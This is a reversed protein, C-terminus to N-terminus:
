LHVGTYIPQSEEMTSDGCSNKWETKEVQCNNITQGVPYDTDWEEAFTESKQRGGATDQAGYEARFIAGRTREM